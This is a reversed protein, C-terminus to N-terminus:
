KISILIASLCRRREKSNLKALTTLYAVDPRLVCPSESRYRRDKQPAVATQMRIGREGDLLFVGRVACRFIFTRPTEKSVPRRSFFPALDGVSKESAHFQAPSGGFKKWTIEASILRARDFGSRAALQDGMGFLSGSLIRDHVCSLYGLGVFLKKAFGGVSRRDARGPRSQSPVSM